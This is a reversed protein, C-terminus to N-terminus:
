YTLCRQRLIVPSRSRHQSGFLDCTPNHLPLKDSRDHFVVVPTAIAHVVEAYAVCSVQADSDFADGGEVGFPNFRPVQPSRRTSKSNGTCVIPM